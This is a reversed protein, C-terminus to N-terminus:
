RADMEDLLADWGAVTTPLEARVPRDPDDAARLAAALQTRAGRRAHPHDSTAARFGVALSEVALPVGRGPPRQRARSGRPSESAAAPERVSRRMVTVLSAGGLAALVVLTVRVTATRATPQIAVSLLAILLTVTTLKIITKV